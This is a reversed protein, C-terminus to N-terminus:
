QLAEYPGTLMIATRPPLSECRMGVPKRMLPVTNVWRAVGDGDYGDFRMEMAQTTGDEFEVVVGQPPTPMLREKRKRAQIEGIRIGTMAGLVATLFAALLYPPFPIDAIM